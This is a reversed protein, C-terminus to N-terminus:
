GTRRRGTMKGIGAKGRREVPLGAVVKRTFSADNFQNEICPHAFARLATGVM